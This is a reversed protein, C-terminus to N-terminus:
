SKFIYIHIIIQAHKASKYFISKANFSHKSGLCLSCFTVKAIFLFVTQRVKVFVNAYNLIINNSLCRNIIKCRFTIKILVIWVINM